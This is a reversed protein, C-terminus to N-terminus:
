RGGILKSAENLIDSSSYDPGPSPEAKRFVSLLHKPVILEQIHQDSIGVYEDYLLEAGHELRDYAVNLRSLGMFQIHVQRGQPNMYSMTHEEGVITARVYAEAASNAKILTLNKQAVIRNDGDVVIRVVLEALYWASNTTPLTDELENLVNDTDEIRPDSAM